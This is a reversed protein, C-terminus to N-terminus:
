MRENKCVQVVAVADNESVRAGSTFFEFAAEFDGAVLVAGEEL